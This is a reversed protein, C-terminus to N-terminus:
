RRRRRPTPRGGRRPRREPLDHPEPPTDDVPVDPLTEEEAWRTDSSLSRRLRILTFAFGLQTGALGLWRVLQELAAVFSLEGRLVPDEWSALLGHMLVLAVIAGAVGRGGDEPAEVLRRALWTLFGLEAAARVCALLTLMGAGSISQESDAGFVPFRAAQTLVFFSVFSIALPASAGAVALAVGVVLFYVIVYAAIVAVGASLDNTTAVFGTTLLVVAGQGVPLWTIMGVPLHRRLAYMAGAVAVALLVASPPTLTGVTTPLDLSRWPWAVLSAAYLLAFPAGLSVLLRNRSVVHGPQEAPETSM